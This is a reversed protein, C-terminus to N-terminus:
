NKIFFNLYQQYKNGVRDVIEIGLHYRGTTLKKAPYAIFKKTEPDYEPIMWEKEIKVHFAQDDKIGSLEDEVEFTLKFRDSPYTFKDKINLNRFKPEVLDYLVGFTGGGTSTATLNYGDRQNDLWVWKENKNDYWSIGTREYFPDQNKVTYKVHFDSKCIFAQPRMEVMRSVLRENSKVYYQKYFEVFRPKYFNKKNFEFSIDDFTIIQNDENGVLYINLSDLYKVPYHSDESMAFGIRDIKKYKELAPIFCRYMNMNYMRPYYTDLLQGENYLEIRAKASQLARVDLSLLIGDELIEYQLQSTMKGREVIGCFINDLIVAKQSYAILRVTTTQTNIKPLNCKLMGNDLYDMESGLARGWDRGRNIFPVVSDIQMKELDMNPSFYFFYNRSKDVVQSDLKYLEEEPGFIFKFDLSNKNGFADEAIIKGNHHGYSITNNEIIGNSMNKSSGGFDFGTNYLRHIGLDKNIVHSFEYRYNVSRQYDFDLTDMLVKYYEQGDILLTLKYITQNMGDRRMRDAVGVFIGFPRNFYLLTDLIYNQTNSNYTPKFEIERLANDFLSYNDMMTFGIKFFGPSVKDDIVFGNALPNLTLNNATRKEFHLHPAGAGTQGTYGILEGKQIPLQNKDLDLDQYYRESARQKSKILSDIKGEFNELHGFVYIFGDDGKLYLGKGYGTYSTRIRNIYGSVPAYVKIGTRGGTRLDIGTHFRNARYDGFGSSLDIKNKIPWDTAFLNQTTLTLLILILLKIQKVSLLKM